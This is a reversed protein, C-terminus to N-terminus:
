ATTKSIAARAAATANTVNGNFKGGNSEWAECLDTLAELLDATQSEAIVAQAVWSTFIRKYNRGRGKGLSGDGVPKWGLVLLVDAQKQTITDSM